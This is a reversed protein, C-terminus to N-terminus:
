STIAPPSSFGRAIAPVIACSGPASTARRPSIPKMLISTCAAWYAHAIAFEPDIETARRFLPLAARAGSSSLVKWATTYAKWAELSPTTVEIPTDHKAITALSEGLRTRLERAIRDLANLVEEKSAARAQGEYLVDGSACTRARLNLVYRSGVNAISGELVAASGTRECVERGLEPTLPADGPRGMLRLARQIRQGSM